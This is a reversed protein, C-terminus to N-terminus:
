PDGGYVFLNEWALFDRYDQATEIRRDSDGRMYRELNQQRGSTIEHGVFGELARVAKDVNEREINNVMSGISNRKREVRLRRGVNPLNYVEPDLYSDYKSM